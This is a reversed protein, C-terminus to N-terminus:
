HSRRSHYTEKANPLQQTELIYTTKKIDANNLRNKQETRKQQRWEHKDRMRPINCTRKTPDASPKCIQHKPQKRYHTSRM